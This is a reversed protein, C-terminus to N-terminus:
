TPSLNRPTDPVPVTQGTVPVSRPVIELAFATAEAEGKGAQLYGFSLLKSEAPIDLVVEAAQWAFQGRLPRDSMNDFAAARLATDARMWLQVQSQGTGHLQARLRVRQGAYRAPSISQMITVFGAAEGACEIHFVKPTPAGTVERVGTQCRQAAQPDGSQFWGEPLMAPAASLATALLAVVTAAILGKLTM